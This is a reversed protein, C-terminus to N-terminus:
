VVMGLMQPAQTEALRVQAVVVALTQLLAAVEM